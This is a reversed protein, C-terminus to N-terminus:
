FYFFQVPIGLEEWIWSSFSGRLLPLLRTLNAGEIKHSLLQLQEEVDVLNEEHIELPAVQQHSGQFIKTTEFLFFLLCSSHATDLWFFRALVLPEMNLMCFCYSVKEASQAKM